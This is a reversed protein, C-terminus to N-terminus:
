AQQSRALYEERTQGWEDNVIHDYPPPLQIPGLNRSGIKTAIACSARNQPRITHIIRPWKLVEFIWDRCASAAEVAYGLGQFRTAIVWGLERDPWGYPKHPGVRGVFSGSEREFVAFVGYGRLQWSGAAAAFSRWAEPGTVPKEGAELLNPDALLAAWAEFDAETPPRLILRATELMM